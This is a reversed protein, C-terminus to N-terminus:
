KFREKVPDIIFTQFCACTFIIDSAISVLVKEAATKIRNKINM